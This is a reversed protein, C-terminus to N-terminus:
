PHLFYVNKKGKLNDPGKAYSKDFHENKKKREYIKCICTYVWCRHCTRYMKCQYYTTAYGGIAVNACRVVFSVM